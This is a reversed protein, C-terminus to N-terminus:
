EDAARRARARELSAQLRGLLDPVEPDDERVPWHELCTPNTCRDPM